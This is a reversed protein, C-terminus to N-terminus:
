TLRAGRLWPLWPALEPAYATLVSLQRHRNERAIRNLWRLASTDPNEHRYPQMHERLDM